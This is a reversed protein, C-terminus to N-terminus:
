DKQAKNLEIWALAAADEPTKTWVGKAPNEFPYCEWDAGTLIVCYREPLERILEGLTPSAWCHKTNFLTSKKAFLTPTPLNDGRFWYHSCSEQPYGAEKLRKAVELSVRHQM